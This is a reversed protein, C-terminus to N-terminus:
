ICTSHNYTNTVVNSAGNKHNGRLAQLICIAPQLAHLQIIGQWYDKGFVTSVVAFEHSSKDVTAKRM